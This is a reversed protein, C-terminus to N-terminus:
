DATVDTDETRKSTFVMGSVPPMTIIMKGGDIEAPAKEASYGERTSLMVRNFETGRPVAIEWVPVGAVRENGDRNIVVITCDTATFRGYAILYPESVLKKLSGTKIEGFTKHIRIMEKHFAILEHDERGWPYTRRNDPDTFGALGAEDGYYITPMGMWTMQIMVALRMVAKDVGKEAAYSGLNNVRGVKGNTRTLFRSHDHNSLQNMAVLTACNAFRNGAYLMTNFFAESNGLMDQRFDDSHKQMGTLFWTVPEMFADYNMVSDWEKGNLWPKPDGYHEALIIAEPNAEKVAKRFRRYFEHNFEPSHGLDAAVDLRWGDANFPPSVWRQAIEIVKDYLNRSAEYNLKPLTDYGWWGDYSGNYPWGGWDRFDFYDRYPSLSDVYAGNQYEESDEYLRERDLWKNFSGCHNFVGDLIIRIGHEHAKRVLECFLEDSAELNEPSTSRIQYKTARKNDHVDPPLCEGGDKVIKGFHPDIHEYDQTDYKHNSPSVFLPNFYIAEIGLDALYDLKDIVGQLDGGYFEKTDDCAPLQYWDEIRQVHGGVYNYEGTVVDNSKDGNCFRETYIQYFVAGKAWDPTHFGPIISFPNYAKGDRSVGVSDYVVVSKGSYIKFYYQYESDTMYASGAYYDFSRDSYVKSMLTEEGEMNVLVVRDVNNRATRFKITIEAYPNPEAPDVYNETTDSYLARKLLTPRMQFMYLQSNEIQRGDFSSM